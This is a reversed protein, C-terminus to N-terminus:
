DKGPVPSRVQGDLEYEWQYDPMPLEGNLEVYRDRWDHVDLWSQLLRRQAITMGDYTHQM